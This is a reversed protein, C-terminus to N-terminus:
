LYGFFVDSIASFVDLIPGFITLFLWFVDSIASFVDLIASHDGKKTVDRTVNYCSSRQHEEFM